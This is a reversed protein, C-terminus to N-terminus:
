HVLGGIRSYDDSYWIYTVKGIVNEIPVVGWVRSDKSNDRNDGLVFLSDEPITQEPMNQSYSNRANEEILYPQEILENNVYVKGSTIKIKEGGRAIVRKVYSITPDPPYIFVIVDNIAPTNSLYSFTSVLIFEGNLISPAMNVTPIRYPILGFVRGRPDKSPVAFPNIIYIAVSLAIFLASFYVLLKSRRAKM